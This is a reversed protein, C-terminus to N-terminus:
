PEGAELVALVAEIGAIRGALHMTKEGSGSISVTRMEIKAQGLLGRVAGVLTGVDLAIGPAPKGRPRAKAAVVLSGGKACALCVKVRSRDM